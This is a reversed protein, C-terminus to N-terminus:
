YIIAPASHSPIIGQMFELNLSHSTMHGSARVMYPLVDPRRPQAFFRKVAIDSSFDSVAPGDISIRMLNDLTREGLRSRWDTKIRRMSSFGREVKANSVPLLLLIEILSALNPFQKRHCGLLMAWINTGKIQKVGAWYTKFARWDDIISAVVIDHKLLLPKFHEIVGSIEELGFSDSSDDSPWASVDLTKVGKMVSSSQLDDFRNELCSSIADVCASRSNRFADLVNQRVATLMVGRFESRDQECDVLMIFKALEAHHQIWHTM